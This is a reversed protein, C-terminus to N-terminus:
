KKYILCGTRLGYGGMVSIVGIVQIFVTRNHKHQYIAIWLLKLM